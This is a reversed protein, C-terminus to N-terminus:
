ILIRNIVEEIICERVYCYTFLISLLLCEYIIFTLIGGRGVVALSSLMQYSSICLQITAGFLHQGIIISFSDELVDALRILQYHGFIIKRIEKRRSDANNLSNKVKCKLIALQGVLHFGICTWFCDTGSYGSLIMITRIFQHLCVFIYSKTDYPKVIPRAKYPLKYEFTSNQIAMIINPTVTRIYYLVVLIMSWPCLITVFKLSIKNFKSFTLKEEDSKYTDATYNMKTEILFQSLSRYKIRLMLIKTVTMIVLTNKMVNSLVYRFDQINTIMDLITLIFFVGGYIIFSIFLSDRTELPWIGSLSLMHRSITIAKTVNSFDTVQFFFLLSLLLFLYRKISHM